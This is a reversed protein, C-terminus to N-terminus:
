NEKRWRTGQPTDELIIGQSKLQERIEDSRLFDRSKRAALREDILAQIRDDDLTAAAAFKIGFVSLLDSLTQRIFDLTGAFVVPREAYVNGLRALEHVKAIGNQVNFDDDMADIYDAVIQRTEQEVKPDNGAEADKLRYGMNDYATQLRELNREATDLNQQTYQIPRRYQTTSMFFRLTQPDVTKLIDHVTVFNGLSKSMKENDDGITVFGNHLWYHVFTKGTKAESQAIENQHHPFILDEGGGHIDFTEGLYHTSMVSCEIHWGPRGAGWPSPWSIEGPKAGKWLAFDVPDEKRATEEDNTHQSAGEELDDLNLHALEGYHSFKHARYYVDGDVPYAYDKDILDQVFEIIENIHETARPNVTAPEINLAATDEKFAAIFRDGLEPVTIGEKNAENIMKDDVDTFNSVYKVQYGRYEFYRRITDFAIASRANGIHIYNYVTPGCVYMNVVGPTIPEFTEKQRTMTNFVKLM